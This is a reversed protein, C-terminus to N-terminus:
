KAGGKMARELAQIGSQTHLYVLAERVTDFPKLEPHIEKELLYIFWPRGPRRAISVGGGIEYQCHQELLREITPIDTM